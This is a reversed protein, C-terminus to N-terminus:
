NCSQSRVDVDVFFFDKNADRTAGVRHCSVTVTIRIFAKRERLFVGVPISHATWHKWYIKNQSRGWVKCIRQRIEEFFEKTQHKSKTIWLFDDQKQIRIKLHFENQITYSNRKLRLLRSKNTFTSLIKVLELDVLSFSRVWFQFRICMNWQYLGFLPRLISDRLCM